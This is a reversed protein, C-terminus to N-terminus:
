ALHRTGWEKGLSLIARNVDLLKPRAGFSEMLGGDLAADSLGLDGCAALVGLMATNLAKPSGAERAMRQAPAFVMRVHAPAEFAGVSEDVLVLGGERVDGIFRELSPRNFAVLVDIQEIVPSGIRNDALIVACNSTGGRQEPGYSPYWSVHRGAAVGARAVILGFSLVGQGGFGAIKLRVANRGAVDAVSPAATNKARLDFIRDLEEKAYVSQARAIPTAAESRDRFNGLPFEKEMQENVFAANETASMK